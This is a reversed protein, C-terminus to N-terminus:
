VRGGEIARLRDRFSGSTPPAPAFMPDSRSRRVRHRDIFANVEDEPVRIGGGPLRIHDLKGAKAWDRITRPTVDLRQAATKPSLWNQSEAERVPLRSM